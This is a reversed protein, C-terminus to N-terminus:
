PTLLSWWGWLIGDMKGGQRAQRVAEVNMSRLRAKSAGIIRPLEGNDLWVGHAPCVDISIGENTQVTMLNGCIPCPRKGSPVLHENDSVAPEQGFMAQLAKAAEDDTYPGPM